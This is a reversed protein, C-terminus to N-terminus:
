LHLLKDGETLVNGTQFQQDKFIMEAEHFNRDAEAHVIM